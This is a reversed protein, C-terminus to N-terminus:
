LKIGSTLVFASYRKMFDPLFLISDFLNYLPLLKRMIPSAVHRYHIGSLYDVSVNFGAKSFVQIMEEAMVPRENETVGLDSYFPSNSDRYLYM